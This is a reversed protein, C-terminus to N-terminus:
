ATSVFVSINILYPLSPVWVRKEGASTCGAKFNFANFSLSAAPIGMAVCKTISLLPKAVADRFASTSISLYGTGLERPWGAGIFFADDPLM